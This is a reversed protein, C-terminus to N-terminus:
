TCMHQMTVGSEDRLHLSLKENAFLKYALAYTLESSQTLRYITMVTHNMGQCYGFPLKHSLRVLISEIITRTDPM